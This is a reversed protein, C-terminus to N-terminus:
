TFHTEEEKSLHHQVINESMNSRYKTACGHRSDMSGSAMWKKLGGDMELWIDLQDQSPNLLLLSRVGDKPLGPSKSM